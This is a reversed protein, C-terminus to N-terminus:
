CSLNPGSQEANWIATINAFSRCVDLGAQHMSSVSILTREKELLFKLLGWTRHAMWKVCLTHLSFLLPILGTVSLPSILRLHASVFTSNEINLFATLSFSFAFHSIICINNSCIAWIEM